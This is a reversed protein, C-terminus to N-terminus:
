RIIFYIRKKYAKVFPGEKVNLSTISQVDNVFKTTM